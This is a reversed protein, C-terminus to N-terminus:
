QIVETEAIIEESSDTPSLSLGQVVSKRRKPYSSVEGSTYTAYMSWRNGGLSSQSWSSTLGPNSNMSVSNSESDFRARIALGPTVDGYAVVYTNGAVMAQSVTSTTNWQMSSNTVTIQVGPALRTVPYGGVYTYASFCVYSPSNYTLCYISYSTILDGSAATHRYSAAGSLAQATSTSLYAASAGVSTNGFTPDITIPYVANHIFDPPVEITLTSDIKLDCWVTWGRNDYARPRYIHFVKGSEYRGIITDKGAIKLQNGIPGTRYAAYSGIVSDAREAGSSIEADTLNGQYLFELGKQQIGCSIINSAPISDYIIEWELSGDPRQYIQHKMSNGQTISFGTKGEVMIRTPKGYQTVSDSPLLLRFSCEGGWAALKLEPAFKASMSDGIEATLARGRVRPNYEEDSLKLVLSESALTESVLSIILILLISIAITLTRMLTRNGAIKMCSIM